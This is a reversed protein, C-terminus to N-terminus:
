RAGGTLLDVGVDLCADALRDAAGASRITRAGPLESAVGYLQTTAVRVSTQSQVTVAVGRDGIRRSRRELDSAERLVAEGAAQPAAAAAHAFVGALQRLDSV